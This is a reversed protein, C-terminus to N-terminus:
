ADVAGDAQGVGLLEGVELLEGEGPPPGDVVGDGDPPPLWEGVGAGLEVGLGDCLERVGVGVGDEGFGELLGVLCGLLGGVLGGVLFGVGAGVPHDAKRARHRTDPQQSATSTISLPRLRQRSEDVM